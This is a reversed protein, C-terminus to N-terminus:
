STPRHARRRCGSLTPRPIKKKRGGEADEKFVIIKADQGGLEVVSNVEPHLKEVALSVATVEQVFKGGVLPALTSGGSGTFFLRCNDGELRLDAELRALFELTKEPQRTEHRQYDSWVIEDSRADVAVAKVTTSGVDMGVLFSPRM